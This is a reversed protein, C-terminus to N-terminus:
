STHPRQWVVQDPRDGGPRKSQEEKEVIGGSPGPHQKEDHRWVVVAVPGKYEGNEGTSEGAICM